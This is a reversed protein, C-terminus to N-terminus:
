RHACRYKKTDIFTSHIEISEGGRYDTRKRKEVDMVQHDRVVVSRCLFQVKITAFFSLRCLLFNQGCHLSKVVVVFFFSSESENALSVARQAKCFM